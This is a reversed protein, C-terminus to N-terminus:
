LSKYPAESCPESAGCLLAVFHSFHRFCVFDFM